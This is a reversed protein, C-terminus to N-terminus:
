LTIMQGNNDDDDLKEDQGWARMKEQRKCISVEWKPVQEEETLSPVQGESMSALMM